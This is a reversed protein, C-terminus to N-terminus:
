FGAFAFKRRNFEDDSMGFRAMSETTKDINAVPSTPTIPTPNAQTPKQFQAASANTAGAPTKDGGGMFGSAFGRVPTAIASGVNSAAGAIASGARSLAGPVDVIPQGTVPPQYREGAGAPLKTSEIISRATQGAKVAAGPPFDQANPIGLLPTTASPLPASAITPPNNLVDLPSAPGRAAIAAAPAAGAPPQGPAVTAATAKAIDADSHSPTFGMRRDFDNQALMQAATRPTTTANTGLIRSQASGPPYLNNGPVTSRPGKTVLDAPALKRDVGPFGGTVHGPKWGSGFSGTTDEAYSGPKIYGEPTLGAAANATRTRGANRGFRALQRKFQPSDTPFFAM